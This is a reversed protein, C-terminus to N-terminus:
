SYLPREAEEMYDTLMCIFETNTPRRNDRVDYGLTTVIAEENGNKWSVEIAHRIAQEVIDATTKHMKAVSPYLRKTIGDLEERDEMCKKVASKLYQWGRLNPRIGIKSLLEDLKQEPEKRGDKTGPADFSIIIQINREDKVLETLHFIELKSCDKTSLWICSM